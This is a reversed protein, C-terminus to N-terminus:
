RRVVAPRYDFISSPVYMASLELETQLEEAISNVVSSVRVIDRSCETALFCSVLGVQLGAFLFLCPVSKSMSVCPM